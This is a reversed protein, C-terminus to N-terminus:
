IKRQCEEGEMVFDKDNIFAVVTEDEVTELIAGKMRIGIQM